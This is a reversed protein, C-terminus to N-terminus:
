GNDGGKVPELVVLKEILAEHIVTYCIEDTEEVGPDHGASHVIRVIGDTVDDVMGYETWTALAALGKKATRLPSRDFGPDRWTAAVISGILRKPVNM